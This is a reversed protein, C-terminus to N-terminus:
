PFRVYAVVTATEGNLINGHVQHTDFLILDGASAEIAYEYEPLVLRYGEGIVVALAALIGPATDKDAHTLVKRNRNVTVRNYPVFTAQHQRHVAAMQKLLLNLSDPWPKGLWYGATKPPLGDPDFGIANRLLIALTAGGQDVLQSGHEVLLFQYDRQDVYRAESVTRSRQVMSIADGYRELTAPQSSFM